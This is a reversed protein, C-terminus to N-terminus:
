AAVPLSARVDALALAFRDVIEALEAATVSLPPSLLVQDGSREDGRPGPYIMLGRQQAAARLREGIDDRRPFPQKSAPDAVLEVGALLGKGRVDGILGSEDQLEHLMAFLEAGRAAANEVLRDREIIELVALAAACAVPHAEYTFNHNFPTGCAAFTDALGESIIVAALPAYGGAMGKATVIVDPLADWHEIGFNRGTRGFGTVVEDAILLVDHRDCIERIREFYGPPPTIAPAAAAVIPEAIFAAVNEAGVLQIARELDEACALGCSPRALGLPCRYCNSEAVKPDTRLLPLYTDRRPGVDGLSLALFTAGHYSRARSLVVHKSGRGRLVHAQRVLKVATEVAESGGSVLVSRDLDGPTFRAIAAALREGAEHRFQTSHLYAVERAQATMADVVEDVGHGVSVVSIAGSDADLYERGDVDWLRIGKARVIQPLRGGLERGLLRGKPNVDGGAGFM